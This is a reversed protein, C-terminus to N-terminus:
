GCAQNETPLSFRGGNLPLQEIAILDILPRQRGALRWRQVTSLSHSPNSDMMSSTCHRTWRGLIRLVLLSQWLPLFFRCERLFLMMASLAGHFDLLQADGALAPFVVLFGGGLLSGRGWLSGASSSWRSESSHLRSRSRGALSFFGHLRVSGSSFYASRRIEFTSARALVADPPWNHHRSEHLPKRLVAELM